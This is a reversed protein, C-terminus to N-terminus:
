KTPERAGLRHEIAEVEGVLAQDASGARELLRMAKAMWWPANSTRFQGLAAQGAAVAEDLDGRALALRGRMLAHTGRGLTSASKYRPMAETLAALAQAAGDLQGTELWHRFVRDQATSWSGGGPEDAFGPIRGEVGIEPPEMLGAAALELDQAPKIIRTYPSDPFEFKGALSEYFAASRELLSREGRVAGIPVLVHLCRVALRRYGKAEGLDMGRMGMAIAREWDGSV